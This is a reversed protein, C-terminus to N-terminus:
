PLKFNIDVETLVQIPERNLLTPQYRWELLAETAAKALLPDGSLVNTEIVKGDRDVVIEVRVTGKIHKKKAEKPYKPAVQHILKAQMVQGGVRIRRPVAPATKEQPQEPTGQSALLAGSFILLGGALFIIIRCAKV